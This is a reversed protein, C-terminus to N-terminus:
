IVRHPDSQTTVHSFGGQTRLATALVSPWAAHQMQVTLPRMILWLKAIRSRKSAIPTSPRQRFKEALDFSTGNTRNRDACKRAATPYLQTPWSTVSSDPWTSSLIKQNIAPCLWSTFLRAYQLTVYYTVSSGCHLTWRWASTPTSLDFTLM